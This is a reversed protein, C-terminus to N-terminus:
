WRLLCDFVDQLRCCPGGGGGARKTKAGHNRMNMALQPESSATQRPECFCFVCVRAYVCVTCHTRRTRHKLRDISSGITSNTCGDHPAAAFCIRLYGAILPGQVCPTRDYLQLGQDQTEIDASIKSIIAGKNRRRPAGSFYLQVMFRKGPQSHLSTDCECAQVM